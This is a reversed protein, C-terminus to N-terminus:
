GQNEQKTAKRPAPFKENFIDFFLKMNDIEDADRPDKMIAKAVMNQFAEREEITAQTLSELTNVLTEAELDIDKTFAEAEEATFKRTTMTREKMVGGM